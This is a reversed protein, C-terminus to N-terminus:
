SINNINIPTNVTDPLPNFEFTSFSNSANQDVQASHRATRAMVSSAPTLIPAIQNTATVLSTSITAYRPIIQPQRSNTGHQSEIHLNLFHHHQIIQIGSPPVFPSNNVIIILHLNIFAIILLVPVFLLLIVLNKVNIVFLNLPVYIILLLSM